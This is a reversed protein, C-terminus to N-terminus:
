MQWYLESFVNAMSTFIPTNICEPQKSLYLLFDELTPKKSLDTPYKHLPHSNLTRRVDNLVAMQAERLSLHLPQTIPLVITDESHQTMQTARTTGTQLSDVASLHQIAQEENITGKSFNMGSTKYTSFRELLANRLNVTSTPEYWSLYGATIYSTVIVFLLICCISKQQVTLFKIRRQHCSNTSSM